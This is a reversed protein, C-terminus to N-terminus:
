GIQFQAQRQYPVIYAQGLSPSISLDTIAAVGIITRPDCEKLQNNGNCVSVIASTFVKAKKEGLLEIFRNMIAPSNVYASLSQNQTAM